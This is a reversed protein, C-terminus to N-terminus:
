MHQSDCINEANVAEPQKLVKNDVTIVWANWFTHMHIPSFHFLVMVSMNM